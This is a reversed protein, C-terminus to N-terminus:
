KQRKERSFKKRMWIPQKLKEIEKNKECTKKVVNRESKIQNKLAAFEHQRKKGEEERFKV